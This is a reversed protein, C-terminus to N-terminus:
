DSIFRPGKIHVGDVGLVFEYGLVERLYEIPVFRDLFVANTDCGIFEDSDGSARLWQEELCWVVASMGRVSDDEGCYVRRGYKLLRELRRVDVQIEALSVLNLFDAVEHLMHRVVGEAHTRDQCENTRNM